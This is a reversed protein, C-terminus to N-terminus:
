WPKHSCYSYFIALTIPAHEEERWLNTGKLIVFRIDCAKFLKKRCLSTWRRSVFFVHLALFSKHRAKCLEDIVVDVAAPPSEM